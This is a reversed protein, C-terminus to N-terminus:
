VVSPWLDLIFFNSPGKLLSVNTLMTHFICCRGAPLSVNKPVTKQFCHFRHSFLFLVLVFVTVVVCKQCQRRFATFVITFSSFFWCLFLSWLVNKASDESLLSFSPFLPFSGVCFCHGCCMKPVTKPFCHFRHSFLFLVLVFVTVVVCKQCQRRFATFVITFSSFFWCLFLSWQVMM